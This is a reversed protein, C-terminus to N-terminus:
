RRENLEEAEFVRGHIIFNLLTRYQWSMLFSRHITRTNRGFNVKFWRSESKDFDSISNIKKGTRYRSKSM